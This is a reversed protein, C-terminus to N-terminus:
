DTEEEGDDEIVSDDIEEDPRFGLSRYYERMIKIFFPTTSPRGYRVSFDTFMGKVFDEDPIDGLETEFRYIGGFTAIKDKPSGLSHSHIQKFNEGIFLKYYTNAIPSTKQKLGSNPQVQHIKTLATTISSKQKKDIINLEAAKKMVTDYDDKTIITNPEIVDSIDYGESKDKDGYKRVVDIVADTPIDKVTNKIADSIAHPNAIGSVPSQEFIYYNDGKYIQLIADRNSAFTDRVEQPIEEASLSCRKDSKGYRPVEECAGIDFNGDDKIAMKVIIDHHIIKRNKSRGAGKKLTPILMYLDMNAYASQDGAGNLHYPALCRNELEIKNTLESYIVNARRKADSETKLPKPPNIVQSAVKKDRYPDHIGQKAFHYRSPLYLIDAESIDNTETLSAHEEELAYLLKSASKSDARPHTPKDDFLSHNFPEGHYYIKLDGLMQKKATIYKTFDANSIAHFKGPVQKLDFQIFHGFQENLGDLIRKFLSSKSKNFARIEDQTFECAVIMNKESGKRKKRVWAKSPTETKNKAEDSGTAPRATKAFGSGTFYFRLKSAIKAQDFDSLLDEDTFTVVNMKLHIPLREHSGDISYIEPSLCIIEETFGDTDRKAAVPYYLMRDVHLESGAADASNFHETAWARLLLRPILHEIGARIPDRYVYSGETATSKKLLMLVSSGSLRSMGVPAYKENVAKFLENYAIGEPADYRALTYHKSLKTHDIKCELENTTLWDTM